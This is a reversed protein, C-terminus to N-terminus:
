ERSKIYFILGLLFPILWIILIWLFANVGRKKADKYVWLSVVLSVLFPIILFMILILFIFDIM